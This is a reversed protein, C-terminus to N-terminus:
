KRKWVIYSTNQPMRRRGRYLNEDGFEHMSGDDKVAWGYSASGVLYIANDVGLDVLAQAFDHFSEQSLTEVMFIEGRRDCISRRISKNKPNNEVIVGNDVLPYQRFFYGGRETAQEFLPSNDAVGITVKGDISACYGQKSLGWAKPEGALVFAGVIGGNDARVDAAQATYIVTSDEKNMRGVHLSLEANHPIYIRLPIDNILTDRIECFGQVLPDVERGLLQPKSNSPLEVTATQPEFYAPEDERLEADRKALVHCVIAILAVAFAVAVCGIGVMQWFGRRTHQTHQSSTDGIIRIEDDRIDKESKM